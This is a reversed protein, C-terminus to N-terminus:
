TLVDKLIIIKTTTTKLAGLIGKYGAAFKTM